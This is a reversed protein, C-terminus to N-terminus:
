DYLYECIADSEIRKIRKEGMSFSVKLWNIMPVNIMKLLKMRFMHLKNENSLSCSCRGTPWKGDDRRDFAIFSM